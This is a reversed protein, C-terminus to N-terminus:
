NFFPDDITIPKPPEVKPPVVLSLLYRAIATRHIGATICGRSIANRVTQVTVGAQSAILKVEGGFRAFADMYWLQQQTPLNSSKPVRHADIALEKGRGALYNACEKADKTDVIGTKQRIHYNITHVAELNTKLLEAIHRNNKGSALLYLVRNEQATLQLNVM